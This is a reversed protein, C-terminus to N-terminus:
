IIQLPAMKNYVMACCGALCAVQRYLPVISYVNAALLFNEPELSAKFGLCTLTGFRQGGYRFPLISDKSIM